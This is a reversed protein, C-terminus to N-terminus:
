SGNLCWWLHESHRLRYIIAALALSRRGPLRSYSGPSIQIRLCGSRRVLGPFRRIFDNQCRTLRPCLVIVACRLGFRDFRCFLSSAFPIQVRRCGLALRYGTFWAVGRHRSGASLRNHSFMRCVAIWWGILQPVPRLRATAQPTRFDFPPWALALYEIVARLDNGIMASWVYIVNANISLTHYLIAFQWILALWAANYDPDISLIM